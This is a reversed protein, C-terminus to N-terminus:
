TAERILYGVSVRIKSYYVVQFNVKRRGTIDKIPLENSTKSSLFVVNATKEIEVILRLNVHVQINHFQMKTFKKAIFGGKKTLLFNPIKKITRM